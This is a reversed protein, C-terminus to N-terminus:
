PVIETSATTPFERTIHITAVLRRICFTVLQKMEFRANASITMPSKAIGNWTIVFSYKLSSNVLDHNPPM